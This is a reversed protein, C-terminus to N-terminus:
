GIHIHQEKSWTSSEVLGTQTSLHTTRMQKCVHWGYSLHIFSAEASPHRRSPGHKILIHIHCQNQETTKFSCILTLHMISMLMQSLFANTKRLLLIPTIHLFFNKTHYEPCPLVTLTLILTKNMMTQCM